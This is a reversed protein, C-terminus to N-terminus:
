RVSIRTLLFGELRQIAARAEQVSELYNGLMEMQGPADCAALAGALTRDAENLDRLAKTLNRQHQLLATTGRGSLATPHPALTKGPGSMSSGLNEVTLSVIMRFNPPM